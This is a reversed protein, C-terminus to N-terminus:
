RGGDDAWRALSGDPDDFWITIVQDGNRLQMCGSPLTDDIRLPISGLCTTVKGVCLSSCKGNVLKGGCHACLVPKATAIFDLLAKRRNETTM